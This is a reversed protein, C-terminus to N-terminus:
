RRKLQITEIGGGSTHDLGSVEVEWEDDATYVGTSFRVYVGHGVPQFSGDIVEAEQVQNVKLGSDDGIFSKYKVSSTSGAAFTGGTSIIVKIRDFSTQPYGYTDVIAGTTNGNISVEKVIKDRGDEDQDLSIIGKRILDLLGTGGEQDYAQIQLRLGHQEDYPLIAMSAALLATARVIVEPYDRGLNDGTGVGKNKYIPKNIYSRVFDSSRSIFENFLTKNDRGATMTIDFNPNSNTTPQFYVVDADEDFYYKGDADISGIDGVSTQEIDNEYLMTFKGVSGAKWIESNGSGSHSVWNTITRKRDYDFVFPAVLQIDEITCYTDLYTSM